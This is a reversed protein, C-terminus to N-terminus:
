KIVRIAKPYLTYTVPTPEIIEGDCQVTLPRDSQLTVQTGKHITVGKKGIHSGKLVRPLICIASLKHVGHLICVQFQGERGNAGPCIHIGGGYYPLNATAVLWVRDYTFSEGDIMLTVTTSQYSFLVRIVSVLYSLSGMNLQNFWKKYFAANTVRAVEGDFGAGGATVFWRSGTYGVDLEEVRGRVITQWAKKTDKPINLARAFDNGSGAPLIGLVVKKDITANLVEHVTGDGGIIVVIDQEKFSLSSVLQKFHGPYESWLVKYPVEEEIVAQKMDQWIREGRGNGANPNVLFYIM